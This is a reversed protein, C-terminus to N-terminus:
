GAQGLPGSGHPQGGLPGFTDPPQRTQCGGGKPAGKDTGALCLFGRSLDLKFLTQDIVPLHPFSSPFLEMMVIHKIIIDPSTTHHGLCRFVHRSPIGATFYPFTLGLLSVPVRASSKSALVYWVLRANAMGIHTQSTQSTASLRAVGAMHIASRMGYLVDPFASQSDCIDTHGCVIHCLWLCQYVHM